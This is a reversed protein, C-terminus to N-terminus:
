FRLYRTFREIVDPQRDIRPLHLELHGVIEDFDEDTFLVSIRPVFRKSPELDITHWDDGPLVGFSRFITFPYVKGEITIGTPTLEYMLTRPPKRAYVVIAGAMAVFALISMWLKLWIVVGVLVATVGFLIAYWVTGKHHHVYESAQWSFAVENARLEELEEASLEGEVYDGAPAETATESPVADLQGEPVDAAVVQVSSPAPVVEADRDSVAAEVETVPQEPTPYVGSAAPPLIVSDPKSPNDAM